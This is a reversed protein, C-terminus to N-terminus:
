GFQRLPWVAEGGWHGHAVKAMGGKGLTHRRGGGWGSERLYAMMGTARNLGAQVGPDIYHEDADFVPPLWYAGTVAGAVYCPGHAEQGAEPSNYHQLACINVHGHSRSGMTEAGVDPVNAPALGVSEELIAMGVPGWFDTIDATGHPEDGRVYVDEVHVDAPGSPGAGGCDPVSGSVENDAVRIESAVRPLSHWGAVAGIDDDDAARRWSTHHTSVAQMRAMMWAIHRGDSRLRRERRRRAAGAVAAAGGYGYLDDM